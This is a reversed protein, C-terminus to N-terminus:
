RNPRHQQFVHGSTLDGISEFRRRLRLSDTDRTPARVRILSAGAPRRFLNEVADAWLPCSWSGNAPERGIRTDGGLSTLM